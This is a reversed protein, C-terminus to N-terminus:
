LDVMFGPSTLGTGALSLMPISMTGTYSSSAAAASDEAMVISGTVICFMSRRVPSTVRPGSRRTTRVTPTTSKSSVASVSTVM